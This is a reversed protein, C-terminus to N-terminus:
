KNCNYEISKLSFEGYCFDENPRHYITKASSVLLYGNIEKYEDAPTSWPYNYYNKGDATEFRDKSIFNILEGNEKFFLTAGITIDGNTFRAEVTLDDTEKWEINKNILTAPAMFCMDNFYTVTEGQDMEPGKADVVKFLGLLKIVMIAIRNKYLHLGIVPIGMKRAKIFFIRTPDDFFSYQVAKLKMWNDTPKGRIVGEFNLKLNNVKEKGLVRAYRLYKQVIPPLHELDRETLIESKISRHRNLGENVEYKFLKKINM